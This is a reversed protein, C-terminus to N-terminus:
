QVPHRAHRGPWRARAHLPGDAGGACSSSSYPCSSSFSFSSPLLFLVPAIASSHAIWAHCADVGQQGNEAVRVKTAPLGLRALMQRLIKTNVGNDEVILVCGIQSLTSASVTTPSPLPSNTPSPVPPTTPSSPPWLTHPAVVLPDPDMSVALDIKSPRDTNDPPPRPSSPQPSRPRHPLKHRDTRHRGERVEQLIRHFSQAKIPTSLFPLHPSDSLARIRRQQAMPALVITPIATDDGGPGSGDCHLAVAQVLRRLLALEPMFRTVATRQPSERLRSMGMVLSPAEETDGIDRPPELLSSPTPPLSRARAPPQVRILLDAEEVPAVEEMHSMARYDVFVAFLPPTLPPGSLLACADDVSSCLVAEAGWAEMTAKILDRTHVLPHVLLVRMDLGKTTTLPRLWSPRGRDSAPTVITFHFTSGQGPASDIWIRGGMLQVLHKSIVLGLGTGGTTEATNRASESHVQTFPQFLRTQAEASIGVGTDRVSFLLEYQAPSNTPSSAPSPADPEANELTRLTRVEVTIDGYQTFQLWLLSLPTPAAAKAVSLLSHFM